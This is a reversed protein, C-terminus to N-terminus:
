PLSRGRLRYRCCSGLHHVPPSSYLPSFAPSEPFFAGGPASLSLAVSSRCRLLLLLVDIM